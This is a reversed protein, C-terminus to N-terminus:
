PAPALPQPELVRRVANVLARGAFPKVLFGGGAQQARARADPEDFATIFIVPAKVGRLTLQDWLEFGTMGPLQVDLVLCAASNALEEGLLAEATEYAVCNVGSLRFIRKLAQNMSADDEVLLVLESQPNPM